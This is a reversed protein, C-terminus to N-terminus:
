DKTEWHQETCKTQNEWSRSHKGPIFQIPFAKWVLFFVYMMQLPIIFLGAHHSLESNQLKINLIGKFNPWLLTAFRFVESLLLSKIVWECTILYSCVNRFGFPSLRSWRRLSATNKQRLSEFITHSKVVAPIPLFYHFLWPETVLVPSFLIVRVTPFLSHFM